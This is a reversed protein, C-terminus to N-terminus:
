SVVPLKLGNLCKTCIGHTTQYGAVEVLRTLKKNPDCWSCVTLTEGNVLAVGDADTALGAYDNFTAPRGEFELATTM